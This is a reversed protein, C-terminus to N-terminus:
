DGYPPQFSHFPMGALNPNVTSNVAQFNSAAPKSEVGYSSYSYPHFYGNRTQVYLPNYTGMSQQHQFYPNSSVSPHSAFAPANNNDSPFYSLSKAPKSAEQLISANSNM